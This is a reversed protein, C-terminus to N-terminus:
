RGVALLCPSFNGLLLLCAMVLGAITLLCVLLAATILGCCESVQPVPRKMAPQREKSAKSPTKQVAPVPQAGAATPGEHSQKVQQGAGTKGECM